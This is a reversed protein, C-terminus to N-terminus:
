RYSAIGTRWSLDQSFRTSARLAVAVRKCATKNSM